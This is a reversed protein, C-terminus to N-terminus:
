EDECDDFCEQCIGDSEMEESGCWWGCVSCEFVLSDLECCFKLSNIEDPTAHDHLNGATGILDNAVEQARKLVDSM